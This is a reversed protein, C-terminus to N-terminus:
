ECTTDDWVIQAIKQGVHLSAFSWLHSGFTDLPFTYTGTRRVTRIHNSGAAAENDLGNIGYKYTQQVPSGKPLVFEISYIRSGVPNNTMLPLATDWTAFGNPVGNLHLTDVAPDFAHADTGVANTMNVSFVVVTDVPLLDVPSFDNFYVVPLVQSAASVM